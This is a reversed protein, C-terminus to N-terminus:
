IGKNPSLESPIAIKIDLRKEAILWALCKLRHEVIETFDEDLQRIIAKEVVAERATYGQQIALIDDETLLPSAVLRMKGENQLFSSLGRAALALGQSTFYGVARWYERSVSLCPVYFDTVTNTQDSRYECQLDLNRLSM